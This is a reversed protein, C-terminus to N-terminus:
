RAVCPLLAGVRAIVLHVLVLSCLRAPCAMSAVITLLNADLLDASVVCRAPFRHCVGLCALWRCAGIIASRGPREVVHAPRHFWRCLSLGLAWHLVVLRGLIMPVFDVRFRRGVMARSYMADFLSAVM